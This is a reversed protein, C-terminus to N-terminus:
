GDQPSELIEAYLALEREVIRDLSYHEVAFERAANGLRGRLTADGLLAVLGSRISEPETGTLWGNEGHTIVERIGSVDTTLVPAGCAMAEILTKPHGEYLSPLVFIGARHIEAAIDGHPLNGRFDVKVGAANAAAEVEAQLPGGGVASLTVPLERLAEILAIVNKQESFRGVFCLRGEERLTEPAPSFSGTDVYNPIVRIRGPDLGDREIATRRMWEATVVVQEAGRFIEAEFEIAAKAEPSDAGFKRVEFDSHLYGCRALFHRGARGAAAQALEAGMVQNSKLIIPGPGLFALRPGLSRRYWREPLGLRNCIVRIGPLDRAIRLDEKGGYTVFTVRRVEEALRLYLATERELMGTRRWRELSYGRTFFLVLSLNELTAPRM